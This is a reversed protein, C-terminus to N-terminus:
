STMSIRAEKSILLILDLNRMVNESMKSTVEFSLFIRGKTGKIKATGIDASNASIACVVDLMVFM